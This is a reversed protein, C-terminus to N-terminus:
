WKEGRARWLGVAGIWSADAIDQSRKTLGLLRAADEKVAAGVPGPVIRRVHARWTSPHVMEVDYGLAVMREEIMVRITTLLKCVKLGNSFPDEIFVLDPACSAIFPDLREAFAKRMLDRRDNPAKLASEFSCTRLMRFPLVGDGGLRVFAAATVKSGPDIGVATMPLRATM